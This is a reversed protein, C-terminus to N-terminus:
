FTENYYVALRYKVALTFTKDKNFSHQTKPKSVYDHENKMTIMLSNRTNVGSCPTKSTRSNNIKISRARM